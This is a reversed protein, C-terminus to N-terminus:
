SVIMLHGAHRSLGRGRGFCLDPAPIDEGIIPQVYPTQCVCKGPDSQPERVLKSDAAVFM